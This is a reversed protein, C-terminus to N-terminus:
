INRFYYGNIEYYYHRLDSDWVGQWDIHSIIESPIGILTGDEEYHDRTFDEESEWQGIYAEMFDSVNDESDEPTIYQNECYAAFAEPDIDAREAVSEYTITETTM